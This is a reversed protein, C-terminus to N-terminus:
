KVSTALKTNGTRKVGIRVIKDSELVACKPAAFEVRAPQIKGASAVFFCLFKLVSLLFKLVSLSIIRVLQNNFSSASIHFQRNYM